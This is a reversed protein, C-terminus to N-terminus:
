RRAEPAGLAMSELLGASISARVVEVLEDTRGRPYARADVPRRVLVRVRQDKHVTKDKARLVRQTGDISV